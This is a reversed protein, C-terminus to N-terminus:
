SQTPHGLPLPCAPHVAQLLQVAGWLAVPGLAPHLARPLLVLVRQRTPAQLLRAPVLQVQKAPAQQRRQRMNAPAQQKAPAQRQPQLQNAPALLQRRLQKPPAQLQRAGKAQKARAWKAPRYGWSGAHRGSRSHCWCCSANSSRGSGSRTQWPACLRCSVPCWWCVPVRVAAMLWLVYAAVMSDFCVGANRRAQKGAVCGCPSSCVWCPVAAAAAGDAAGRLRGVELENRLGYLAELADEENLRRRQGGRRSQKQKSRPEVAM